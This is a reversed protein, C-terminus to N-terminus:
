RSRPREGAVSFGALFVTAFLVAAGRDALESVSRLALMLLYAQTGVFAGPLLRTWKSGLLLATFGADLLLLYSGLAWVSDVSAGLLAPTLFGGVMAVGALAESQQRACLWLNGATLLVIGAFALPFGVLHFLSYSAWLSLYLVGTGAAKLSFSFVPYGGRRFRESWGLLGFGAFFGVWVRLVPGLWERDVAYKLFWAAGVLLAVIGVRNFLQSGIRSELTPRAPQMFSLEPPKEDYPAPVPAGASRELAEVRARLARLERWVEENRPSDM